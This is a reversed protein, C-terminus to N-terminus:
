GGKRKLLLQLGLKIYEDTTYDTHSSLEKSIAQIEANKYGLSKLAVIADEFAVSKSVAKTQDEVLKGKLDLIIQSATKAGIGPMRKLFPLDGMEIAQVLESAPVSGLIVIATKPGVGKVSILNLFLEKEEQTLFGYLSIEDERVHQYTHVMIEQGLSIKEPRSFYMYYGIGNNEVILYDRGYSHVKGLIFAIM